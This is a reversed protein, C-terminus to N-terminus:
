QEVKKIPWALVRKVDAYHFTPNGVLMDDQFDPLMNQKKITVEADQIKWQKHHIAGQFLSNNKFSWLFYRELLWHNLSSPEPYYAKSIPKYSGEFIVTSSAKRITDFYITDKEKIMNMKAYFYPLSVIRAGIVAPLNNADLSFFYVGPIGNHKVYTRVNVELFSNLFPLPPIKRLHMNSIKFPIISIWATGKFLDLELGVPLKAELLSKSVPLHIFLLDNWKQTMLWPENPSPLDRHTTSNLTDKYM